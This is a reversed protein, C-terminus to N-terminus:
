AQRRVSAFWRLSDKRSISWQLRYGLTLEWSDSDYGERSFRRLLPTARLSDPIDFTRNLRTYDLTLEHNWRQNRLLLRARQNVEFSQEGFSGGNNGRLAQPEVWRRASAIETEGIMSQLQFWWDGGFRYELRNELSRRNRKVLDVFLEDSPGDGAHGRRVQAFYNERRLHSFRVFLSDTTNDEFRRSVAYSITLDDNRREPTTEVQAYTDLEHWYDRWQVPAVVISIESHPGYDQRDLIDEWRYGIGPIIRVRNALKLDSRLVLRNLSFDNNRTERAAKSFDDRFVKASAQLELQWNRRLGYRLGLGAHQDDKWVDGSSQQQLVSNFNEFVELHLGPQLAKRYNLHTRWNFIEIDHDFLMRM